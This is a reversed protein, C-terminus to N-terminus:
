IDERSNPFLVKFTPMISVSLISGMSLYRTPFSLFAAKIENIDQYFDLHELDINTTVAITPFFFFFHATVRM